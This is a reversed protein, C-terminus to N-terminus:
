LQCAEGTCAVPVREGECNEEDAIRACRGEPSNGIRVGSSHTLPEGLRVGPWSRLVGGCLSRGNLHPSLHKVCESPCRALGPPGLALVLVRCGPAMTGKRRGPCAGSGAPAWSRRGRLRRAHGESYNTRSAAFRFGAVRGWFARPGRAVVSQRRSSWANPMSGSHTALM